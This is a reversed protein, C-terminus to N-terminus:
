AAQVKVVVGVYTKVAYAWAEKETNAVVTVTFFENRYQLTVNYDNM